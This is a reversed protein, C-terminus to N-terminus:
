GNIKEGKEIKTIKEILAIEVFHQISIGNNIKVKKLKKHLQESIKITRFKVM